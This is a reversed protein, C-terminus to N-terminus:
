EIGHIEFFFDVISILLCLLKWRLCIRNPFMVRTALDLNLLTVCVMTCVRRTGDALRLRTILNRPYACEHLAKFKERCRVFRDAVRTCPFYQRVEAARCAKLELTSKLLRFVCISRPIIHVRPNMRMCDSHKFYQRFPNCKNCYL